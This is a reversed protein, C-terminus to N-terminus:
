HGEERADGVKSEGDESKFEFDTGAGWDLKIKINNRTAGTLERVAEHAEGLDGYQITLPYETDKGDIGVSNDGAIQPYKSSCLLFYLNIDSKSYGASITRGKTTVM